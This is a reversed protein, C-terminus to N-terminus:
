AFDCILKNMTYCIEQVVRQQAKRNVDYVQGVGSVFMHVAVYVVQESVSSFLIVNISTLLHIKHTETILRRTIDWCSSSCTGVHTVQGATRETAEPSSNMLKTNVTNVSM